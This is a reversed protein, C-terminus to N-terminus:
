WGIGAGGIPFARLEHEGANWAHRADPNKVRGTENALISSRLGAPCRRLSPGTWSRVSGPSQPAPSRPPLLTAWGTARDGPWM